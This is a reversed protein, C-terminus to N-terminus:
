AEDEAGDEPKDEDEEGSDSEETESDESEEADADSEAEDPEEGLLTAVDEDGDEVVAMNVQAIQQSVTNGRVSTRTREGDELDRAGTGSGVLLRKRGTGDVGRRMPFGETDSGGTIRLTYGDLGVISGEVEDGISLGTLAQAQQDSLEIQFSEGDTTGIVADM